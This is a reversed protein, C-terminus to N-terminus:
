IANGLSSPMSAADSHCTGFLTAETPGYFQLIRTHKLTEGLATVLSPPVADGGTAFLKLQSFDEPNIQELWAQALSPVMHIFRCGALTKALLSVDKITAIPLLLVQAGCTLPYMLEALSIDFAFSAIAPVSDGRGLDLLKHIGNFRCTLNGHEVEVGKPNGTSGSTYIVYARNAPNQSAIRSLNAVDCEDLAAFVEHTVMLEIGSDKIMYDSRSQPYDPDFPVYAGGAKLIGLIGIVMDFSRDVCLGVLTDAKVGKSRLHHALQNANQNLQNYSLADGQFVLATGDPTCVVQQEFMEHILQQQDYDVQTQNLTHLLHHQEDGSLMPLVDINAQPNAVIGALL